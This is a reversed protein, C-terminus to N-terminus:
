EHWSQDPQSQQNSKALPCQNAEIQRQHSATAANKETATLASPNLPKMRSKRVGETCTQLNVRYNVLECRLSQIFSLFNRKM